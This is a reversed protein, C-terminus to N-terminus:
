QQPWVISRDDNGIKRMDFAALTLGHWAIHIGNHFGSDKDHTIGGWFEHAHRQMAAYSWGFDYGLEWNRDKYKTAGVGFLEALSYLADPPMLDFRALKQGKTGGTEPDTLFHTSNDM